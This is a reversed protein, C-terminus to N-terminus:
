SYAVPAGTALSEMQFREYTGAQIAARAEQLLQLVVHLNHLTALRHALIEGAMFLHRVYARSFRACAPCSCGPELPGGDTRLAARRLNIRGRRTLITGTRAMRTPLVCDFLDIGRAIGALLDAPTGVGMLYRPYQDPIASVSADLLTYM